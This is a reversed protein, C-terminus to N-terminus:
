HVKLRVADALSLAPNNVPAARARQAAAARDGESGIVTVEIETGHHGIFYNYGQLLQSLIQPLAGIYTGSVARDLTMSANVRLRFASKLASLSEAVTSGTAKLQVASADGSVRVEAHATSTLILVALAAAARDRLRAPLLKGRLIM